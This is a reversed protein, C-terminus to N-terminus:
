TCMRPSTAPELLHEANRALALTGFPGRMDDFLHRNEVLAQWMQGLQQLHLHRFLPLPQPDFASVELEFWHKRNTGKKQQVRPPENLQCARPAGKFRALCQRRGSERGMASHPRGSM